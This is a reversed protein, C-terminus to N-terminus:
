KTFENNNNKIAVATAKTKIFEPHLRVVEGIVLIGPTSIKQEEADQLVKDVTSILVREDPTSGKEIIMIPLDQKGEELLIERIIPLKRIAM